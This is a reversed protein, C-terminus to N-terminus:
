RTHHSGPHPALAFEPDAGFYVDSSGWIPSDQRILGSQIRYASLAGLNWCRTMVGTAGGPGAYSIPPGICALYVEGMGGKGLLSQISYHGLKQGIM